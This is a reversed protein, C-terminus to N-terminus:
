KRTHFYWVSALKACEKAIKCFVTKEYKIYLLKKFTNQFLNARRTTHSETKNFYTKLVKKRASIIFLPRGKFTSVYIHKDSVTNEKNGLGSTFTLQHQFLYVICLSEPEKKTM